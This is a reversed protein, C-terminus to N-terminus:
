SIALFWLKEVDWGEMGIGSREISEIMQLFNAVWGM